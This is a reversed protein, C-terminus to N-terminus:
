CAGYWGPASARSSGTRDRPWERPGREIDDTGDDPYLELALAGADYTGPPDLHAGNSM